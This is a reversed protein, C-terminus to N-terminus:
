DETTGYTSGHSYSVDELVNGHADHFGVVEGESDYDTWAEVFAPEAAHPWKPYSISYGPLDYLHSVGIDGLRNHVIFQRDPLLLQTRCL